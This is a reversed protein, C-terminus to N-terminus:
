PKALCVLRIELPKLSLNRPLLEGSLCDTARVAKDGRFLEFTVPTQRYNCLNVVTGKPTQSSRWEVGWLPSGDPSRLEVAPNVGWAPLNKLLVNWLDEWKTPGFQYPIRDAKLRDARPKGYDDRSLLDAGGVLVIRGRYKKMSEFAANSLHTVDPVMLIPTEPVLDSELQRETVFGIKLGTFSLATYLKGLCDDYRGADWVSATVSQLLLVQPKAQQIATLELAARNMDYNAIGVAEACAPRHMISGAVDSKPDFTREWVWITTASQGHVAAQWLAARIHEPPVYRTERDIIIHNETNFVPADLVSRQLDHGMANAQWGQAFQGRGFSYWNVSDNGNINSFQGFLTADVGYVVDGANLLTWTMAKAHVPLRPAVAHVADALMKHWGAFFEQNFRIYDMWIPMAPRAEFPNPLPAEDFTSYHTNWNSNLTELDGHRKKLWAHWDALAFECPEEKNVPENSLCVSQLAPHDKLPTLLVAIFQRLLAQGEPAHLCYQLFGDRKKRLFPWKDLAWAPFYHPSILLCVAVGAKQARDLIERMRGIPANNTVGESPFISHPGLEIQIINAGYDPWKEMDAVVQGFHGYGNFFIPRDVPAEGPLRMPGIFSSSEIIPRQDGTWRPVAPLVRKGAQVEELERSLKRAMKELEGIQMLARKIENHQTDDLAYGVFNKLVTFTVMPYSPDQGSAKVQELEKELSPLAEKLAAIRQRANASSYFRVPMDARALEKGNEELRLTATRPSDDAALSRGTINIKWAGTGLELPRQLTSSLVVSALCSCPHPTWLIFPLAFPGDGQVDAETKMGELHVLAASDGEPQVPTPESGKELKLDDLWVGKTPSETNIRLTFNCDDPGPSFTMWVRKWQGATAPLQLRFQWSSGGIVSAIGPEDSKVWASLTYPTGAELRVPKTRWLTGYVHAGFATGNALRLCHKGDHAVATDMACTADTNRKDWQWGDPMGNSQVGELGPNPILNPNIQVPAISIGELAIPSQNAATDNSGNEPAAQVAPGLLLMAGCLVSLSADRALSGGKRAKPWSRHESSSMKM